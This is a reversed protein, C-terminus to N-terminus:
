LTTSTDALLDLILGFFREEGREYQWGLHILCGSCVSVSWKFGKFWTHELNPEGYVYCGEAVSFCGIEYAFGEPNTFTHTHEGNVSIINGPATIRHGCNRCVIFHDEALGFKKETKIRINSSPGNKLSKLTWLFSDQDFSSIDIDAM